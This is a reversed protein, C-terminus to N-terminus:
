ARQGLKGPNSRPSWTPGKRHDPGRHLTAANGQGRALALFVKAMAKNAFHRWIGGDESVVTFLEM